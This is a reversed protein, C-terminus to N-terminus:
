RNLFRNVSDHSIGMVEGLHRCSVYHPESLLFGTYM